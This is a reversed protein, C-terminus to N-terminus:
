RGVKQGLSAERFLKRGSAPRRGITPTKSDANEAPFSTALERREQGGFPEKYAAVLRGGVKDIRKATETSPRELEELVSESPSLGKTGPKAKRPRRKASARKAMASM